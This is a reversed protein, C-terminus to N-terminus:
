NNNLSVNEKKRRIARLKVLLADLEDANLKKFVKGAIRSDLCFADIRKWDATNIGYLQMQLLVASRKQRIVKQMQEQFTPCVLKEMAILAIRYEHATIERLSDTRGSTCQLVINKKLEEKDPYHMRNLLGYFSAYNEPKKMAKNM